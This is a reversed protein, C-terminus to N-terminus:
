TKTINIVEDLKEATTETLHHTVMVVMGELGLVFDEIFRTTEKDLNTTAEDMILINKDRALARALAIRQRQGGSLNKGNEKIMYDPDLEYLHVIKLLDIAEKRTLSGDLKINNKVTDNFLYTNQNVYAIDNFLVGEKEKEKGNIIIEGYYTDIEGIIAKLLSSKGCGSDGIVAYKKNDKFTINKEIEIIKDGFDIALDKNSITEIYNGTNKINEKSHVLRYEEFLFPSFFGGTKNDVDYVFSLREKYLARGSKYFTKDAMFQMVSEGFSPMLGLVALFAGPAVKGIIVMYSLIALALVTSFSNVVTLVASMVGAFTDVKCISYAFEHSAKGSKRIFVSFSSNELFTDFGQMLERIKNLFSEKESQSKIIYLSLRDQFIMPIIIMFFLSILAIIAMFYHIQFLAILICLAMTAKSVLSLFKDFLLNLIKPVDNVYLSTYEGSEKKMFESYSMKSIAYDIKQNLSMKLYYNAVAKCREDAAFFLANIIYIALILIVNKKLEEKTDVVLWSLIYSTLVQTISYLIIVISALKVSNFKFIKLICRWNIEM